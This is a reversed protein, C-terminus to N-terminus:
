RQQYCIAGPPALVLSCRQSQADHSKKQALTQEPYISQPLPELIYSFDITLTHQGLTRHPPSDRLSSPLPRLFLVALHFFSSISARNVFPNLEIVHNILALLYASAQKCTATFRKAEWEWILRWSAESASALYYAVTDRSQVQSIRVLCVESKM